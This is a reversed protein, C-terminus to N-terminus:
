CIRPTPAGIPARVIRKGGIATKLYVRKPYEETVEGIIQANKGYKTGKIAELVEGSKGSDVGIVAKGENTLNLPDIGLLECINNVPESVPIAKENLAIGVESKSALENLTGAIGGRTPDKMATIGGVKLGAEVTEWIPNVDSKIEGSIKIGERHAIIATEHEGINGTVIIKNGPKLGSDTVLPNALGIGTTTIIMEDLSGKEVVKTDGTVISVGVEEAVKNMSRTIERLKNISFGESLVVASSIALPKGGMVALDNVTGSIALKGIDGGPFFLPKIAHSDTTFVLNEKGISIVAGDDLEELGVPGTRKNSFEKLAIGKILESTKTGGAGHELSIKEESM